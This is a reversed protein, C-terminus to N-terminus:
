VEFDTIGPIMKYKSSNDGQQPATMGGPNASAKFVDEYYKGFETVQM